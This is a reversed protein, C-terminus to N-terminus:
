RSCIGACGLLPLRDLALHRITVATLLSPKTTTLRTKPTIMKRMVVVLLHLCRELCTNLRQRSKRAQNLSIFVNWQFWNIGDTQPLCTLEMKVHGTCFAALVQAYQFPNWVTKWGVYEGKGFINFLKVSKCEFEQLPQVQKRWNQEPKHSSSAVWPRELPHLHSVVDGGQYVLSTLQSHLHVFLVGM